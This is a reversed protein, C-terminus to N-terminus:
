KFFKEAAQILYYTDKVGATEYPSHMALQPLGIDVANLAVKTNSINGLTSGGLMDSRNTFNQFPVGAERCLDKFVAASVGDTCYKQNASHKIVIGENMYPRNVPDAVEKHNPHVAHANDASLMFSKALARLYEEYSLGLCENIRVLTDYLFTSAAGQKTGSGVEENDLVCHVAAYEKKEGKLFGQLSSFACQLDDLRSSSVFEENAGWISGKVRNYLFIDHGLIDEEKVGAAEAISKMFTDKSSIDGYLPLMDVQANYKYGDNVERNMHIALNPIMLLDRDVDVFKTVFADGEKVIVRGAVSLPRDFWPACLMGGYREVNLKVYKKDVEMEPNEKIKFTPSDSHSAMIRYGFAGTEPITFAVISSDNRTVFYKGGNVIEWKDEERLEAFGEALLIDKMNKIAHFCSPSKEIFALLQEATERYM